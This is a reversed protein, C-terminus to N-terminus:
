HIGGRRETAERRREQNPEPQAPSFCQVGGGDGKSQKFGDRTEGTRRTRVRREGNRDAHCSEKGRKGEEQKIRGAQNREKERETQTRWRGRDRESGTPLWVSRTDLPNPLPIERSRGGRM